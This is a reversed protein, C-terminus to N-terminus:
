GSCIAKLNDWARKVGKLTPEAKATPEWDVKLTSYYSKCNRKVFNNAEPFSEYPKILLDLKLETAPSKSWSSSRISQVKDYQLQIAALKQEAKWSSRSIQDISKLASEVIQRLEIDAVVQFGFGASPAFQEGESRKEGAALVQLSFFTTFIVTAYM